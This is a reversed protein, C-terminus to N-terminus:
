SFTITGTGGKFQLISDTGDTSETIIGENYLSAAQAATLATTFVRVQDILGPFFGVTTGVDDLAGLRYPNQSTYVRNGPPTANNNAVGNLYIVCDLANYTVVVHWWNNISIGSSAFNMDGNSSYSLFTVAGNNLSIQFGKNLGDNAYAGFITDWAGFASPNIWFSITFDNNNVLNNPLAVYSSTGNFSAANGFVGSVYSNLNYATGSNGNGSSDLVNNNLTYFASNSVPFTPNSSSNLNGTTSYNTVANTPYRLIVIGSGGNGGNPAPNSLAAASGGGGGGGLGRTGSSGNISGSAPPVGANGGGGQGGQGNVGSSTNFTYKGGAGGGAYFVPSGTISVSLGDGGNGGSNTTGNAGPDAAGGGGGAGDDTSSGASVGGASGQGTTGSGAVNPNSGGSNYWQGGGGSGGAQGKSFSSSGSAANATGGFGGGTSIIESGVTGFKSNYGNTTRGDAGAINGNGGAGVEITYNTALIASFSTEAPTVGGGTSPGYSTRLGGAGGGGGGTYDFLSGGGGGGGAVVLYDINFNPPANVLANTGDNAAYEALWGQATGSYIISVAGRQYDIKVDNASGNINAQATIKINNTQATGAYDVISVIDGVAPSPPMTVIVENSTTNVFYGQSAVSQFNGTKITSQWDVGLGGQILEKTVKTLAM